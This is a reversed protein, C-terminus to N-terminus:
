FDIKLWEGMKYIHQRTKAPEGEDPSLISYQQKKKSEKNKSSDETLIEFNKEVLQVPQSGM